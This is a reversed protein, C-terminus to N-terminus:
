AAKGLPGLGTTVEQMQGQMSAMSPNMLGGLLKAASGFEDSYDEAAKQWFAAYAAWAQEPSGSAGLRQLLIFDETMRRAVFDQWENSLALIGGHLRANWDTHGAFAPWWANVPFAPLSFAAPLEGATPAPRTTAKDSM